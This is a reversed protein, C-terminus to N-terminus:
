VEKGPSPHPAPIWHGNASTLWDRGLCQLLAFFKVFRLAYTPSLWLHRNPPTFLSPHIYFTVYTSEVCFIIIEDPGSLLRGNQGGEPPKLVLVAM